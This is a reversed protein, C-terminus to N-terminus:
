EAEEYEPSAEEPETYETSLEEPEAQEAASDETEAYGAATDEPMDPLLQARPPLTEELGVVPPREPAAEEDINAEELLEQFLDQPEEPRGGLKRPSM